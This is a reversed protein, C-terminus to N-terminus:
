KKDIMPKIKQPSMTIKTNENPVIIYVISFKKTSKLLLGILENPM